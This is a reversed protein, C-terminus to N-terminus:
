PRWRRSAANGGTIEDDVPLYVGFNKKANRGIWDEAAAKSEFDGIQEAVVGPRIIEVYWLGHAHRRPTLTVNPPSKSM